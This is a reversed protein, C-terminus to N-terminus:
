QVLELARILSDPDFVAETRCAPVIRKNLGTLVRGPGCEVFRSVGQQSMFLISDTWRVPSYLQKELVARIVDPASHSAVDVNHLVGIPPIKVAIGSLMERFKEAASRMLPCHSPVSVPLLVARKAGEAKGLEVAREVAVKHGAIVIQGPANFNAPKVIETETSARSCVEVVQTDNLGLIAAMAGTEPPVAEQMLRGREAVLRVADEFILAGSCVLAAYEGLSHGAMWGPRVSTRKSWVRWAAVDAALMAPQTCQTLNLREEPGNRVLDWLDYGLVESAAQFTSAVETHVEALKSLMGVSQSGQGPFLFALGEDVLNTSM